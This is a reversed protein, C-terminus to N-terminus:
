SDLPSCTCFYKRSILMVSNINSFRRLYRAQLMSSVEPDVTNIAITYLLLYVFSILIQFANQYIPATFTRVDAQLVERM